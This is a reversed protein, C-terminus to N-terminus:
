KKLKEQNSCVGGPRRQPCNVLPCDDCYREKYLSGPSAGCAVAFTVSKKPELMFSPTLTVGLKQSPLLAMFKKQDELPFNGYGPSIRPRRKLGKELVIKQIAEDLQEAAKEVVASGVADLIVANTLHGEQFMADVQAELDCGITVMAIFVGRPNPAPFWDGITQSNLERFAGRPVALEEAQEVCEEVLPVFKSWQDPNDPDYGLLELVYPISPEAKIKNFFRTTDTKASKM